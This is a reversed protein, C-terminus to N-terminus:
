TCYTHVIAICKLQVTQHTSFAYGGMYGFGCDLYPINRDDWFIKKHRKCDIENGDWKGCGIERSIM